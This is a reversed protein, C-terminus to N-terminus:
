GSFMDGPWLFGSLSPSLETVKMYYLFYVFKTKQRLPQSLRRASVHIGKKKMFALGLSLRMSESLDYSEM